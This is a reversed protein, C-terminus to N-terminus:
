ILCVVREGVGGGREAGGGVLILAPLFEDAGPLTGDKHAEILQRTLTKSSTVICDMLDRPAKKGEMMRLEQVAPSLLLFSEEITFSSLQPTVDVV